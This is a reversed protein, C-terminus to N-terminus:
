RFGIARRIRSLALAAHHRCHTAGSDALHELSSMVPSLLCLHMLSSRGQTCSIPFLHPAMVAVHEAILPTTREGSGQGDLAPTSTVPSAQRMTEAVHNVVDQVATPAQESEEALLPSENEAPDSVFKSWVVGIATEVLRSVAATICPVAPAEYVTHVSHSPDEARLPGHWAALIRFGGALCVTVSLGANDAASLADTVADCLACVVDVIDESLEEDYQSFYVLANVVYALCGLPIAESQADPSNEVVACMAKCAAAVARPATRIAKSAVSLLVPLGGSSAVRNAAATSAKAISYILNAAQEVFESDWSHAELVPVLTTVVGEDIICSLSHPMMALLVRVCQSHVDVLTSALVQRCAVAANARAARKGNRTGGDASATGGSCLIGLLDSALLTCFADSRTAADSLLDVVCEIGNRLGFEDSVVTPSQHCLTRLAVAAACRISYPVYIDMCPLALTEIFSALVSANQAIAPVAAFALDLSHLHDRISLVLEASRLIRDGGALEGVEAVGGDKCDSGQARSDLVEVLQAIAKSTDQITRALTCESKSVADHFDLRRALRSTRCRTEGSRVRKLYEEEAGSIDEPAVAEWSGDSESDVIEGSGEIFSYPSADSAPPPPVPSECARATMLKAAQRTRSSGANGSLLQEKSPVSLITSHLARAAQTRNTTSATPSLLGSPSPSQRHSITRPTEFVCDQSFRGSGAPLQASSDETLSGRAKPRSLQTRVARDHHGASSCPELDDDDEACSPLSPTRAAESGNHSGFIGSPNLYMWAAARRPPSPTFKNSNALNAIADGAHEAVHAGSDRESDGLQSGASQPTGSAAM